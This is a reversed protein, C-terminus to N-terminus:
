GGSLKANIEAIQARLEAVENNLSEIRSEQESSYTQNNVAKGLPWSIGASVALQSFGNNNNYAITSGFNLSSKKLIPLLRQSNKLDMACGYSFAISNDHYGAGLGCTSAANGSSKPLSSIAAGMAVSGNIKDIVNVGNILLNSGNNIDIDIKNGNVDTAYLSQKGNQEITVLSNQGIHTAGDATKKILTTGDSATLNLTKIKSAAVTWSDTTNEIIDEVPEINPFLKQYGAVYGNVVNKTLTDTAPDYTVYTADSSDLLYIVGTMADTYSESPSWSGSDFAFAQVLTATGTDSVSYIENKATTDNYKVAYQSANVFSSFILLIAISIIKVKM